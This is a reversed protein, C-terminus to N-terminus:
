EALVSRIVADVGRRATAASMDENTRQLYCYACDLNCRNTLHIWATLLEKGNTAPRTEEQPGQLLNLRLLEAIAHEIQANEGPSQDLVVAAPQPSEFRRLLAYAPQNLTVVGAGGTFDFAAWHEGTLPKLFLEPARRYTAEDTVSVDQMVASSPSWSVSCACDCEKFPYAAGAIEADTKTRDIIEYVRGFRSSM